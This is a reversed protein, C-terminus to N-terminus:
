YPTSIDSSTGTLADGAAMAYFGLSSEQVHTQFCMVNVSGVRSMQTSLRVHFLGFDGEGNKASSKSISERPECGSTPHCYKPLCTVRSAPLFACGKYAISFFLFIECFTFYVTRVIM